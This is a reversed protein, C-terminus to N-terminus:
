LERFKIKRVKFPVGHDQLGIWGKLPRDAVPTEDLQIDQIQEGNLHVIVHHGKCVVKLRNWQGAPKNMNKSPASTRIVGGGDHPGLKEKGHSDKIQIEIGRKTPDIKDACRFYLGSNGDPPLNFELEIKFDAYQKKLWLYSEYRKWGSEGERPKLAVSGDTEVIWNGKTDFNRLDKGNTLETLGDDASVSLSPLSLFGFVLLLSLISKVAPKELLSIPLCM